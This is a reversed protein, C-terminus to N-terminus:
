VTPLQKIKSTDTDILFVNSDEPYALCRDGHNQVSLQCNKKTCGNGISLANKYDPNNCKCQFASSCEIVIGGFQDLQKVVADVM